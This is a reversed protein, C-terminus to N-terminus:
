VKTNKNNDARNVNEQKSKCRQPGKEIRQCTEQGTNGENSREHRSRSISIHKITLKAESNM